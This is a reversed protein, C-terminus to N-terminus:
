KPYGSVNLGLIINREAYLVGDKLVTKLVGSGGVPKSRNREEKPLLPDDDFVFEDIWYETKGKEKVIPHIHKPNTSNPYSAPVLTYFKYFGNKDTKIWGRLYGHRKAWGKENGTTPYVGTQDTHYFYLIVDAAPTKDDNQYIIGSVVLKPGPTNFDSLTDVENLQDFPIPNEYIAECGECGGGVKIDKEPSKNTTKTKSADQGCASLGLLCAILLVCSNKM